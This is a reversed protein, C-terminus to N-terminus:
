GPRATARRPRALAHALAEGDPGEVGVAPAQNLDAGAGVLGHHLARLLGFRGALRASPEGARRRRVPYAFTTPGGSAGPTWPRPTAPSTRWRM